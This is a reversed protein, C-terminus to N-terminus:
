TFGTLDNPPSAYTAIIPPILTRTFQININRDKSYASFNMNNGQNTISIALCMLIVVHNCM